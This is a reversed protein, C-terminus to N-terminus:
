KESGKGLIVYHLKSFEYATWLMGDCQRSFPVVFPCYSAASDSVYKEIFCAM